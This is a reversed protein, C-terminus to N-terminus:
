QRRDSSSGSERESLDWLAAWRVGSLKVGFVLCLGMFVCAAAGRPSDGFVNGLLSQVGREYAILSTVFLISFGVTPLGAELKQELRIIAAAV